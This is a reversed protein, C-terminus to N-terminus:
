GFILTFLATATAMVSYIVYCSLYLYSFIFDVYLDLPKDPQCQCNHGQGPPTPPSPPPARVLVAQDLSSNVM